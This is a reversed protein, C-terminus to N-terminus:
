PLEPSGEWLVTKGDPAKVWIDKYRAAMRWCIFGLKGGCRDPHAIKFVSKGDLFCEVWQGRAKILIDRWQNTAIAVAKHASLPTLKLGTPLMEANQLYMERSEPFGIAWETHKTARLQDFVVVFGHDGATRKAKVHFDYDKWALDGFVISPMPKSTDKVFEEQVLEGDHVSWKGAPIAALRPHLPPPWGEDDDKRPGAKRVTFETHGEREVGDSLKLRWDM